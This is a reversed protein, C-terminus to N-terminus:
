TEVACCLQLRVYNNNKFVHVSTCFDCRVTNGDIIIKLTLTISTPASITQFYVEKKRDADKYFTSKSDFTYSTGNAIQGTKSLLVMSFQRPECKRDEHSSAAVMSTLLFAMYLKWYMNDIAVFIVSHKQQPTEALLNVQYVSAICSIYMCMSHRHQEKDTTQTVFDNTIIKHGEKIDPNSLTTCYWVSILWCPPSAAITHWSWLKWMLFGPTSYSRHM